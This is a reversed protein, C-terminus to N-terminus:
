KENTEEEHPTEYRDEDILKFILDLNKPDHNVECDAVICHHGDKDVWIQGHELQHDTM